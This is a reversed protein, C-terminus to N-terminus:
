LIWADYFYIQSNDHGAVDRIHSLQQPSIEQRKGSYDGPQFSDQDTFRLGPLRTGIERRENNVNEQWSGLLSRESMVIM